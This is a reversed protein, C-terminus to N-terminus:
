RAPAEPRYHPSVERRSLRPAMALRAENYREWEAYDPLPPITVTEGRDLGVLAADVLDDVSMLMEPPLSNPDMGSREWIETLTAGPLVAQSFAGHAALEKHLALSFNLLYAKTGSYTGGFLEPALALVSAVNVIGGKGRAALQPALAHALRTPALVNLLIMKQLTDIDGGILGGEAAMGANNLLLTISADERLRQEVKGLDAADTLDAKLAEAHVGYQQHLRGALADLRQQDRAVLLLDYGRAALRDAYTAGIGTSAGTIVATGLSPNRSM